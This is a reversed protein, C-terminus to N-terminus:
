WLGTYGPWWKVEVPPSPHTRPWLELCYADNEAADDWDDLQAAALGTGSWRARYQDPPLGPVYISRSEGMLQFQLRGTPLDLDFEVVHDWADLNLEPASRTVIVDLPIEACDNRVFHFHAIGDRVALTQGTEIPSEWQSGDYQRAISKFIAEDGFRTCFYAYTFPIRIRVVAAEM